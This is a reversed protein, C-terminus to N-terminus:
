EFLYGVERKVWEVALREALEFSSQKVLVAPLLVVIDNPKELAGVVDVAFEPSQVCLADVRLEQVILELFCLEYM